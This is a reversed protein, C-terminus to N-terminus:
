NGPRQSIELNNGETDQFWASLSGDLNFVKTNESQYFQVGKQELEIVTEEIDAVGFSMLTHEAKSDENRKYLLFKRTGTKVWYMDLEASLVEIDFGLVQGYFNKAKEVNVMPIAPVIEKIRM